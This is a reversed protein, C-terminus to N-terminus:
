QLHDSTRRWRVRLGVGALHEHVPVPRQQAPQAQLGPVGAPVPDLREVEARPLLQHHDPLGDAPERGALPRHQHEAVVLVQGLLLHGPQERIGSPVTLDSPLRAM